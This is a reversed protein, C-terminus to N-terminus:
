RPRCRRRCRKSDRDGRTGGTETAARSLGTVTASFSVEITEEHITDLEMTARWLTPGNRSGDDDENDTGM